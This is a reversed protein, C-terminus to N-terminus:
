YGTSQVSNSLFRNDYLRMLYTNLVDRGLLFAKQMKLQDFTTPQGCIGDVLIIQMTHVPPM